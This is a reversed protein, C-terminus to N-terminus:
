VVSIDGLKCTDDVVGEAVDDEVYGVDNHIDIASARAYAAHFCSASRNLSNVDVINGNRRRSKFTLREYIDDFYPDDLAFDFALKKCLEESPAADQSADALLGSFFKPGSLAVAYAATSCTAPNVRSSGKRVM